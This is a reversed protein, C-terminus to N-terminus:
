LKTSGSSGMKKYLGEIAEFVRRSGIFHYIARAKKFDYVHVIQHRKEIMELFVKEHGEEIFGARFAEKFCRLPTPCDLGEARFYEKLTKWLSEFTYEFRKTAIEVLWEPKLSDFLEKSTVIERYKKFAKKFKEFTRRFKESEEM